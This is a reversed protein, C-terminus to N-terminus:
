GLVRFMAVAVAHPDSAVHALLEYRGAALARGRARGTLRFGNGGAPSIRQFSALAGGARMCAVGHRGRKPALCAGDAGRVGRLMRKIAFSALSVGGSVTYTVKAGGRAATVAGRRAARFSAPDIRLASIGRGSPCSEGGGGGGGAEAGCDACAAALCASLPTAVVSVTVSTSLGALDTVTLTASHRGATSFAHEVRAGPAASTGDDFAWQSSVISDGDEPASVTGSFTVPKGIEVVDRSTTAGVSPGRWQYEYPGADRRGHVLRPAGALDTALEGAAPAGPAGADILPSSPMLRYDAALPAVFDADASLLHEAQLTSIASVSNKTFDYSSYETEVTGPKAGTETGVAIPREPGSIISDQLKTDAPATTGEVLLGADGAGVIADQRLLATAGAGSNGVVEVGAGAGGLEVLSDEITLTSPNYALVVAPFGGSLVDARLALDGSAEVAAPSGTVTSYAVEGGGNTSVARGSKVAISGKTFVGGNISLGTAGTAGTPAEITTSRITGGDLTIGTLDEHPPVLVTVGELVDESGPAGLLLVGSAVAASRTIVTAGAGAGRVVVPELAGYEYQEGRTYIGPGILVEDAGGSNPHASADSLAKQLATGTTGEDVGGAPCSSTENVCYVTASAASVAFAALVFAAALGGGLAKWAERVLRSELLPRPPVVSARSM